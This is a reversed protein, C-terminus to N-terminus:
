KESLVKQVKELIMQPTSSAKVIYDAVGLHWLTRPAEDRSINTLVLVPIDKGWEKSRLERLMEEGSMIPMRLDLLVADPKEKEVVELGQEGDLALSVQFKAKEFKLKYMELITHDDEVITIKKMFSGKKLVFFSALSLMHSM